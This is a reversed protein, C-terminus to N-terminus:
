QRSQRRGAQRVKGDNNCRKWNGKPVIYPKRKPNFHPNKALPLGAAGLL